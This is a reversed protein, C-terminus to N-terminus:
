DPTTGEERSAAEDAPPVPGSTAALTAYPGGGAAGAAATRPGTM